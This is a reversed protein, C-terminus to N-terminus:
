ALMPRVVRGLLLIAETRDDMIFFLFPHDARFTKANKPKTNPPGTDYLSAVPVSDTDAGKEHFVLYIHHFIRSLFLAKGGDLGSMDAKEGSFLDKVGVKQLMDGVVFGLEFRFKPFHLDVMEESLSEIATEMMTRSFKNELKSLGENKKPLVVYLKIHGNAFPIELMDSDLKSISTYRFTHQLTMMQISMIEKAPLHFSGKFTKRPDFEHLWHPRMYAACVMLLRVDRDVIGLPIIDKVRGNTRDDAWQNIEKRALDPRTKFDVNKLRPLEYTNCTEEYSAIMSNDLPAFIRVAAEYTCGKPLSSRVVDWHMAAFAPLLHFDQVEYLHLAKHIEDKTNSNAGIYLLGLGLSVIMPAYVFNGPRKGDKAFEQYLQISFKNHARSLCTLHTRTTRSTRVGSCGGGCAEGLGEDCDTSAVNGM